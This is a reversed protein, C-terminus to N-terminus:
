GSLQLYLFHCTQHNAALGLVKHAPMIGTITPVTMANSTSLNWMIDKRAVNVHETSM